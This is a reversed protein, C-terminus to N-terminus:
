PTGGRDRLWKKAAQIEDWGYLIPRTTTHAVIHGEQRLKKLFFGSVGLVKAAEQESWLLKTPQGNEVHLRECIKHALRELDADTLNLEVTAM